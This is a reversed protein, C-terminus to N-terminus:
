VAWEDESQDEMENERLLITSYWCSQSPEWYADDSGEFSGDDNRLGCEADSETEIQSEMVVHGDNHPLTSVREQLGGIRDSTASQEEGSDVDSSWWNSFPERRHAAIAQSDTLFSMPTSNRSLKRDEELNRQNLGKVEFGEPSAEESFPVFPSSVGGSNFPVFEDDHDVSYEDCCADDDKAEGEHQISISGMSSFPSSYRYAADAEPASEDVDDEHQEMDSNSFHDRIDYSECTDIEMGVEHYPTEDAFTRDRPLPQYRVSKEAENISFVDDDGAAAERIGRQQWDGRQFPPLRTRTLRWLQQWLNESLHSNLESPQSGARGEILDERRMSEIKELVAFVSSLGPLLHSRSALSSLYKVNFVEPILHALPPSGMAQITQIDTSRRRDVMLTDLGAELLSMIAYSPMTKDDLCEQKRLNLGSNADDDPLCVGSDQTSPSEEVDDNPDDDRNRTALLGLQAWIPCDALCRAVEDAFHHRETLDEGELVASVVLRFSPAKSVLIDGRQVGVLLEDASSFLKHSSLTRLSLNCAVTVFSATESNCLVFPDLSITSTTM